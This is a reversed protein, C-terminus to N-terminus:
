RAHSIARLQNSHAVVVEGVHPELIRAIGLANGTAELLVRDDSGLSRAYLELGGPTTGVRAVARAKAM